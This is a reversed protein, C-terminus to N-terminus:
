AGRVLSSLARGAQEVYSAVPKALRDVMSRQSTALKVLAEINTLAQPNGQSRDRLYSASEAALNAAAAEAEGRNMRLPINNKEMMKVLHGRLERMRPDNRGEGEGLFHYALSMVASQYEKVLPKVQLLNDALVATSPDQMMAHLHASLLSQLSQIRALEPTTNEPPTVRSIPTTTTTTDMAKAKINAQYRDPFQRNLELDADGTTIVEDAIHLFSHAAANALTDDVMDAVVLKEGKILGTEIALRGLPLYGQQLAKPHARVANNLVDPNALYYARETEYKEANAEARRRTRSFEQPDLSSPQSDLDAIKQKNQAVRAALYGDVLKAVASNKGGDSLAIIDGQEMADHFQAQLSQMEGNHEDAFAAHNVRKLVNLTTVDEGTILGAYQLYQVTRQPAAFLSVDMVAPAAATEETEVPPAQDLTTPMSVSWISEDKRKKEAM